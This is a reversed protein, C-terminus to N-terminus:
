RFVAWKKCNNFCARTHIHSEKLNSAQRVQYNHGPAYRRFIAGMSLMSVTGRAWGNSVWRESLKVMFDTGFHWGTAGGVIPAWPLYWAQGVKSLGSCITLPSYNLSLIHYFYYYNTMISYAGKSAPAM